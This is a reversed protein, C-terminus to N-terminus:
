KEEGYEHKTKGENKIWYVGNIIWIVLLICYLIIM